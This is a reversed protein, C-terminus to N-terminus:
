LKSLILKYLYTLSTYVLKLVTPTILGLFYCFVKDAQKIYYLKGENLLKIQYIHNSNYAVKYDIENNAKLLELGKRLQPTNFTKDLDINDLNTKHILKRAKNMCLKNNFTKILM